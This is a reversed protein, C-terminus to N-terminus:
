NCCCCDDDEEPLHAEADPNIYPDADDRKDVMAELLLTGTQIPAIIFDPCEAPVLVVDGEKLIRRQQGDEGEYQLSAEGKVCTYCLFSGFNETYMHLPDRDLKMLNVTLEPIKILNKVLEEEHGHKHDHGYGCDCDHGHHCHHYRRYDIFDLADVLNFAPDFEEEGTEQGWTCLCFDLPSSESVEVISLDGSAAHVTGPAIHFFDGEHPCQINLLTEVTGNMCASYVKEADTDDKFGLAIRADKGAKAVYWLKEKGLLDYRQSALEDGPHVRLPLIGRVKVFKIEFPFQRGYYQFVHEGVVDDLYMDMLESMLVGALWGDHVLTDRYGIDALKFIEDGWVYNDELSCFALPYLKKEEEM